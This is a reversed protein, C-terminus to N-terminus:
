PAIGDYSYLFDAVTTGSPAENQDQNIICVIPQDSTITASSIWNLPVGALLPDTPQYFLQVGGVAIGTYDTTGTIGAYSIHMAAAATGVNQCTISTNWLYYRKLVIPARVETSGAAFGSYSAARNYANSENVLVVIPQANNSVVTAGYLTNGAPLVSPTYISQAAGPAINYNDSHGNTYTVTVDAAATGMNQIVLASNYGYYNNMIVPAYASTAGATFANYSYLQNDVGAKGYINVIPAINGTGTIKASYFQNQVLETLGEQEWSVSAYAPVATKTNAYVPTTNGPEFIELTIDVPSASANQVYVNSYFNYYNNYIGPAYWTTGPEAIGNHSAGSNPDSFNVVAAVKKNCSVVASYEGDALGSLSPVYVYLSDGPAVTSTTSTYASAGAATYFVYSCTADTAELNQVRFATNFPGGPAPAAAFVPTVMALAIVLVMTISFIKKM